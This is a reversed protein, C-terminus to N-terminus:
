LPDNNFRYKTERPKPSPQLASSVVTQTDHVRQAEISAMLGAVVGAAIVTAPVGAAFVAVVTIVSTLLLGVVLNTAPRYRSPIRFTDVAIQTLGTQYPAFTKAYTVSLGIILAIAAVLTAIQQEM